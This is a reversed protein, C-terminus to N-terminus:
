MPLPGSSCREATVASLGAACEYAAMEGALCSDFGADTGSVCNGPANTGSLGNLCNSFADSGGPTCDMGDVEAGGLCALPNQGHAAGRNLPVVLPKEYKM